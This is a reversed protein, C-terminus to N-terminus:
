GNWSESLGALRSLIWPRHGKRVARAFRLGKECGSTWVIFVAVALTAPNICSKGRRKMNVPKRPEACIEGWCPYPAVQALQLLSASEANRPGAEPCGVPALLTSCLECGPPEWVRYRLGAPYNRGAGQLPRASSCSKIQEPETDCGALAPVIMATVLDLATAAEAFGLPMEESCAYVAAAPIEPSLIV